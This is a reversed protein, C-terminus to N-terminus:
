FNWTRSQQYQDLIRKAFLEQYWPPAEDMAYDYSVTIEANKEVNTTTSIAPVPGFRPHHFLIFKGNPQFSHNAKHALSAKYAKTSVFKSPIDLVGENGEADPGLLDIIKYANAEWDDKDKEIDDSRMRVGNYFSVVFNSPLDRKAFLGEKAGKIKSPRVQVYQNEYPDPLLPEKCIIETTGPDISYIPGRPQTFKLQCIENRVVVSQVFCTQAMLMQTRIFTGVLATMHDPFLFAINDGILNGTVDVEGTLCGGGALFFRDLCSM